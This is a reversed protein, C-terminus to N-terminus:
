NWFKGPNRGLLDKYNDNSIIAGGFNVANKFIIPDDYSMCQQGPLNKCPTLILKEEKVLKALKEPDTSKNPNMRNTFDLRLVFM